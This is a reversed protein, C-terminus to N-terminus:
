LARAKSALGSEVLVKASMLGKGFAAKKPFALKGRGRLFPGKAAAGYAFEYDHCLLKECLTRVFFVSQGLGKL